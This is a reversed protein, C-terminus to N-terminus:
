RFLSAQSSLREENFTARHKLEAERLALERSEKERQWELERIEKERRWDLEMRKENERHELEKERQALEMRKEKERQAVEREHMRAERLGDQLYKSKDKASLQLADAEATLRNILLILSADPKSELEKSGVGVTGKEETDSDAM